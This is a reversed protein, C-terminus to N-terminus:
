PLAEAHATPVVRAHAELDGFPEDVAVRRDLRMAALADAIRSEGRRGIVVVTDSLMRRINSPEARDPGAQAVNLEEANDHMILRQSADDLEKLEM